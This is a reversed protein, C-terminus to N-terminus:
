KRSLYWCILFLVGPTAIVTAGFSGPITLSFAIMSVIAIIGGMLEWKWALLLGFCLGFPFFILGLTERPTAPNGSKPDFFSGVVMLLLFLVLVISCVRAIWRIITVTRNKNKSSDIKM